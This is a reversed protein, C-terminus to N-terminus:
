RAREAPRDEPAYLAGIPHGGIEGWTYSGTRHMGDHGRRLECHWHDYGGQGRPPVAYCSWPKKRHVAAHLAQSYLWSRLGWWDLRRWARLYRRLLWVDNHSLGYFAGGWWRHGLQIGGDGNVNIAQWEYRQDENLGDIRERYADYSTIVEYTRPPHTPYGTRFMRRPPGQRYWWTPPLPESWNGCSDRGVVIMLAHGWDWWPHNSGVLDYIRHRIGNQPVDNCWGRDYLRRALRRRLTRKAAAGGTM